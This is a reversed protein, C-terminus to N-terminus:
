LKYFEVLVTILLQVSRAVYDTQCIPLISKGDSIRLSMQSDSNLVSCTQTTLWYIRVCVQQEQAYTFRARSGTSVLPFRCRKTRHHHTLHALKHIRTVKGTVKLRVSSFTPKVATKMLLIPVTMTLRLWGGGASTQLWKLYPFCVPASIETVSTITVRGKTWGLFHNKCM